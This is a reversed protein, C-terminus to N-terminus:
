GTSVDDSISEQDMNFQKQPQSDLAPLSFMIRPSVNSTIRPSTLAEFASVIAWASCEPAV